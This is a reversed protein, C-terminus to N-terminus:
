NFKRKRESIQIDRYKNFIEERKSFDQKVWRYADSNQAGDKNYITEHVLIESDALQVELFGFKITGEPGIKHQYHGTGHNSNNEDMTIVSNYDESGLVSIGNRIL